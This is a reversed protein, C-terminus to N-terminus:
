FYLYSFEGLGWNDGKRFPNLFVIVYRIRVLGCIINRHFLPNFTVCRFLDNFGVSGASSKIPLSALMQTHKM